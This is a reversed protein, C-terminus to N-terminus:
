NGRNTLTTCLEVLKFLKVLDSDDLVISFMTSEKTIGQHETWENIFDARELNKEFSPVKYKDLYIEVKRKM